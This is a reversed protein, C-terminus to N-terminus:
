NMSFSWSARTTVSACSGSLSKPATPRAAVVVAFDRDQETDVIPLQGNDAAPPESRAYERRRRDPARVLCDAVATRQAAIDRFISYSNNALDITMQRTRVPWEDARAARGSGGPPSTLRRRTAAKRFEDRPDVGTLVLDPLHRLVPGRRASRASKRLAEAITEYHQINEDPPSEADRPILVANAIRQASARCRVRAVHYLFLTQL